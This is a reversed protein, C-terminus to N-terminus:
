FVAGRGFGLGPQVVGGVAAADQPVGGFAQVVCVRFCDLQVRRCEAVLVHVGQFRVQGDLVVAFGLALPDDHGALYQVAVAAGHGPLEHFDPLGVRGAAVDVLTVLVGGRQVGVEGAHAAADGAGVAGVKEM